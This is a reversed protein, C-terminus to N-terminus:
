AMAAIPLLRNINIQVITFLDAPIPNTIPPKNRQPIFPRRTPTTKFEQNEYKTFMPNTEVCIPYLHHFCNNSKAGTAIAEQTIAMIAYKVVLKNVKLTNKSPVTLNAMYM